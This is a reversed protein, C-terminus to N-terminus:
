PHQQVPIRNTRDNRAINSKTRPHAIEQGGFEDLSYVRALDVRGGVTEPLVEKPHQLIKGERVSRWHRRDQQVGTLRLVVDPLLQYLTAKSTAGGGQM